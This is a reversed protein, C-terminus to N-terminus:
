PKEKFNFKNDHCVMNIGTALLDIIIERDAQPINHKDMVDVITLKGMIGHVLEHWFRQWHEMPKPNGTYVLVTDTYNSIKGVAEGDDKGMKGLDTYKKVEYITDIIKVRKPLNM